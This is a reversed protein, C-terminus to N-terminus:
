SNETNVWRLFRQLLEVVFKAARDFFGPKEEEIEADNTDIEVTSQRKVRGLSAHDDFGLQKLEKLAEKNHRLYDAINKEFLETKSPRPAATSLQLSAITLLGVFIAIFLKATM